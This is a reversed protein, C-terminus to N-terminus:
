EPFYTVKKDSLLKELEKKLVDNMDIRLHHYDHALHHTDEFYLHVMEQGDFIQLLNIVKAFEPAKESPIKLWLGPAFKKGGPAPNEGSAADGAQPQTGQEDLRQVSECILKTDEEERLSVRGTVVVPKTPELFRGYQELTKPFVLMEVSGTNDELGVFAMTDGSRTTKLKKASVIAGVKVPMGDRVVAGEQVLDEIPTVHQKECAERYQTMPHGSIYLGTVEKEMSLLQQLPYEEMAPLTHETKPTEANDFLSVQGTLNSKHVRDIDDLIDAYGCLMQRRNAGFCDLAGCKILSELCRRNMDKGYTRECFDSFSQYPGNERRENLIDTIVGAGINKVALLGFRINSGSVTFGMESENIHAPLVRIHLRDCEAMYSIVKDTNDLVSTLLAAMYEKTYHCKLYATQYAVTAYAAAHSKNFAYSAFSSMEDFIANATAEDVGNAVCGCCEVSGDPRRAGHIFNVREKEMVDHKKKAMARRVLDARGYSYGALQRCIQMVQEQYVICGNTVDLIPKLLPHRYTIGAPNHRNEIYKPISEMPGPRYLSIVAILDEVSVPGLQVLVQRMGASEFQFVGEARGEGLMAFVAKDDLPISNISFDPEYARIMKECDAIVTLNRLGLFDMKLLGLEELTTMTFQTVISEDNQQVPVYSVVPDRTIVVGAAHTSAHRPMGEVKRALDILEAIHPDASCMERLDPSAALAKEITMHLEMPILKAVQDTAQYTMGMARGVDRIAGRAAMTGFTIIQAVHDAGYKRVVYDIVESRREYCFDIDFDPMSVREPNLFREFLLNYRIPDIGTIGVCYACLSGAGSGRGPGVPIGQSRAYNIFDFVILYYDVYGMKIIVSLEYELRDRVAQDPADGYHRRLGAYCLEKFYEVNDKGDPAAFYPLKTKGFEFEVDCQRAIKVTNDLAEPWASFVQEMEDRSKLYFEETPFEMENEEDITHNTQICVLLHQVRSDEKVIYHADNTAVLGVGIEGALKVLDPLIEQQERIGHNQLEIYYNEPGFLDRYFLATEKAHKYDGDVLARPIEGALCASLCILGKTHGQLLEHDIRPKFYFGETYARSVLWILNQYGTNNKCLLILHCPSSDVGYTKDFRTRPAVYVECGIIPRIGQKKAEKYFDIVGYMAGHDTIAVASQGLEKARAVLQPIRCAGDLLSYESHVHLHVFDAM